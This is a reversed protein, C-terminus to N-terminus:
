RRSAGYAVAEDTVEVKITLDLYSQERLADKLLQAATREPPPSSINNPFQVKAQKTTLSMRNVSPASSLELGGNPHKECHGLLGDLVPSHATGIDLNSEANRRRNTGTYGSGIHDRGVIGVPGEHFSRNNPSGQSYIANAEASSQGRRERDPNVVPSDAIRVRSQSQIGQTQQVFDGGHGVQSYGSGNNRM